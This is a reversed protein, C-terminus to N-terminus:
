CCSCSAEWECYEVNEFDGNIQFKLCNNQHFQFHDDLIKAIKFLIEDSMVPGVVQVSLPVGNHLKIPISIGPMGTICSWDSYYDLKYMEVPDTNNMESMTLGRDVMVPLIVFDYQQFIKNMEHAIESIVQQAKKCLGLDEEYYLLANGIVTRRKVENGLLLDRSNEYKIEKGTFAGHNGYLINNFRSLNSAVDIFNTIMYAQVGYNLINPMEISNCGYGNKKLVEACEMIAQTIHDKEGASIIGFKKTKEKLPIYDTTTSDKDDSGYMQNAIWECDWATKALVGVVDFSSVLEGVGYRSIIGYTPKYGFLGNIAAPWRISGGTETGLAGLVSGTIVSIASGSSSGGPSLNEGNFKWPSTTPSFYSNKGSSGIAFEDMNVKMAVSCKKSLKNVVEATIPATFNKTIGSGFTNPQGKILINDKIAIPIKDCQDFYEILCFNLDKNAHNIHKMVPLFSEVPIQQEIVKRITLKRVDNVSM